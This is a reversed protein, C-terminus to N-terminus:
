RCRALCFHKTVNQALCIIICTSGGGVFCHALMWCEVATCWRTWTQNVLGRSHLLITFWVSQISIWSSHIVTCYQPTVILITRLTHTHTMIFLTLFTSMDLHVRVRHIHMSTPVTCATVYLRVTGAWIQRRSPWIQFPRIVPGLDQLIVHSWLFCQDHLPFGGREYAWNGCTGEVTFDVTDWFFVFVFFFKEWEKRRNLLRVRYTLKGGFKKFRCLIEFLRSEREKKSPFCM